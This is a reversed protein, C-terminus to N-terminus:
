RRTPQPRCDRHHGGHDCPQPEPTPHPHPDPRPEPRSPHGHWHRDWGADWRGRRQHDWDHNWRPFEHYRPDFHSYDGGLSRLVLRDSLNTNRTLGVYLTLDGTMDDPVIFDVGSDDVLFGSQYCSNEDAANCVRGNEARWSFDSVPRRLRRANRFADASLRLVDGPHVYVLAPHDLADLENIETLHVSLLARPDPRPGSPQPEPIGPTQNAPATTAAPNGDSGGCATLALALALSAWANTSHPLRLM